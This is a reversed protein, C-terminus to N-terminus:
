VCNNYYQKPIGRVLPKNSNGFVPNSKSLIYPHVRALACVCVGVRGARKDLVFVHVRGGECVQVCLCGCIWCDMWAAFWRGVPVRTACVCGCVWGLNGLEWFGSVGVSVRGYVFVRLLGADVRGCSYM